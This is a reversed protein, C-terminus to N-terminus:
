RLPLAQGARHNAAAEVVHREFADVGIPIDHRKAYATIVWELVSALDHEGLGIAEDYVEFLKGIMSKVKNGVTRNVGYSEEEGFVCRLQISKPRFAKLLFVSSRFNEAM